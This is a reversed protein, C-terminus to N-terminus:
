DFCGLCKLAEPLEQDNPTVGHYAAKNEFFSVGKGKVTAAIIASPTGKHLEAEDLARVIQSMDHGDIEIVHWGFSRFKDGIPAINMVKAVEGDIQLRNADILACLNDSKYHASAM